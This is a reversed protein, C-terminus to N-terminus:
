SIVIKAGVPEGAVSHSSYLAKLNFPSSFEGLRMLTPVFVAKRAM